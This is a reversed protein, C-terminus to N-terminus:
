STCEYIAYFGLYREKLLKTLESLEKKEALKKYHKIEKELEQIRATREIIEKMQAAITNMNENDHELEKESM